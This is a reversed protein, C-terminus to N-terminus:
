PWAAAAALGDDLGSAGAGTGVRLRGCARVGEPTLWTESRDPQARPRLGDGHPAEPSDRASESRRRLTPLRGVRGARVAVAEALSTAKAELLPLVKGFGQGVARIYLKHVRTM